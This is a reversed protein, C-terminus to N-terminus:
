EEKKFLDTQKDNQSVAPETLEPLEKAALILASGKDKEDSIFFKEMLQSFVNLQESLAKYYFSIRKNVDEGLANISDTTLSIESTILPEIGDLFDYDINGTPQKKRLNGVQTLVSTSQSQKEPEKESSPEAEIETEEAKNSLDADPEEESEPIDINPLPDIIEPAEKQTNKLEQMRGVMLERLEQNEISQILQNDIDINSLVFSLVGDRQDSIKPIIYNLNNRIYNELFEKSHLDYGDETQTGVSNLLEELKASSSYAEKIDRGLLNAKKARLANFNQIISQAGEEKEKLNFKKTSWHMRTKLKEGIADLKQWYNKLKEIQNGYYLSLLYVRNQFDNLEGGKIQFQSYQNPIKGRLRSDPQFITEQLAAKQQTNQKYIEELQRLIGQYYEDSYIQNLVAKDIKHRTFILKEIGYRSKEEGDKSGYTKAYTDFYMHGYRVVDHFMNFKNGLHGTSDKHRTKISISVNEVPDIIDAVSFLKNTAEGHPIVRDAGYLGNVFSEGLFGMARGGLGAFANFFSYFADLLILSSIAESQSMKNNTARQQISNIKEFVNKPTIQDSGVFSKVITAFYKYDKTSSTGLKDSIPIPKYAINFKLDQLDEARSIRGGEADKAEQINVLSPELEEFLSFLGQLDLAAEQKKQPVPLKNEELKKDEQEVMELISLLDLKM